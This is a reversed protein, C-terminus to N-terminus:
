STLFATKLSSQPGLQSKTVSVRGGLLQRQSLLLVSAEQISDLCCIDIPKPSCISCGLKSSELSQSSRSIRECIIYFLENKQIDYSVMHMNFNFYSRLSTRIAFILVALLNVLASINAKETETERARDPTGTKSSGKFGSSEAQLNIQGQGSQGNM